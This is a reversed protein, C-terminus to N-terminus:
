ILYSLKIIEGLKDWAKKSEIAEKMMAIGDQMDRAKGDIILALAGNLLVVDLKAGKEDGRLIARTIEANQISDGGKIAELPALKFGYAQPDIEGDTMTQKEIM